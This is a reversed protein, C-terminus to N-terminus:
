ATLRREVLLDLRSEEAGPTYAQPAALFLGAACSVTIRTYTSVLRRVSEEQAASRQRWRLVITRDAETFGFDGFAAGGDLTATRTVRRTTTGLDSSPLVDLHVPVLPDYETTSLIARM